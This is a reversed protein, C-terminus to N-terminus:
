KLEKRWKALSRTLRRQARPPSEGRMFCNVEARTWGARKLKKREDIERGTKVCWSPHSFASQGWREFLRVWLAVTGPSLRTKESDFEAAAKRYSGEKSEGHVRHHFYRAVVARRHDMPDQIKAIYSM